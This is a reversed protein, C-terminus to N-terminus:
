CQAALDWFVANWQRLYQNCLLFVTQYVQSIHCVQTHPGDGKIFSGSAGIDLFPRAATWLATIDNSDFKLLKSLLRANDETLGLTPSDWEPPRQLSLTPDPLLESCLECFRVVDTLTIKNYLSPYQQLQSVFDQLLM